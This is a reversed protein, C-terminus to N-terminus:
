GHLDHCKNRELQITSHLIGYKELILKQASERVKEPEACEDLLLHCTLMPEGSGVLWAHLDHCTDVGGLSDLESRIAGLDLGPPAGELLINVSEKVLGWGSWLILLGIAMSVVPDAVTWGKWLILLSATIAGVSGLSDAALHLFAGRVNLDEHRHGLLVMASALNAALGALSVWLMLPADVEVPQSVRRMSEFIIMGVILWLALGNVLGSLVEARGYGYSRKSSPPREAIRSAILAIGLAAVDSLMHGADALLAMSHSLLGGVLEIVLFVANIGFAWLLAKRRAHSRDHGIQHSHSHSHSM